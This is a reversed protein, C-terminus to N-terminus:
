LPEAPYNPWGTNSSVHLDIGREEKCISALLGLSPINEKIWRTSHNFISIRIAILKPCFDSRNLWYPLGELVFGEIEKGLPMLNLIQLNSPMQPAASTADLRFVCGHDLAVTMELVEPLYQAYESHWSGAEFSRLGAGHEQLLAVSNNGSFGGLVVEDLSAGRCLWDIPFASPLWLPADIRANCVLTRLKSLAPLNPLTYGGEHLVCSIYLRFEKLSTATALLLAAIMNVLKQSDTDAAVRIDVVNAQQLLPLLHNEFAERGFKKRSPRGCHLVISPCKVLLSLWKQDYSRAAQSIPCEYYLNVSSAAILTQLRAVSPAETRTESDQWSSWTKVLLYSLGVKQFCEDMALCTESM